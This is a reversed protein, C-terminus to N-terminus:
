LSIVDGHRWLGIIYLSEYHRVVHDIKKHVNLIVLILKESHLYIKNYTSMYGIDSLVVM